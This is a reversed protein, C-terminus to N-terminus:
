EGGHILKDPSTFGAPMDRNVSTSGNSSVYVRVFKGDGQEVSVVRHGESNAADILVKPEWPKPKRLEALRELQDATHTWYFGHTEPLEEYARDRALTRLASAAEILQENAVTM